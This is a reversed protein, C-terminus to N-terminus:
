SAIPAYRLVTENPTLMSATIYKELDPPLTPSAPV